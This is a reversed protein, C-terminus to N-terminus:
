SISRASLRATSSPLLGDRRDTVPLGPLQTPQPVRGPRGPRHQCRQQRGPLRPLGSRRRQTNDAGQFYGLDTLDVTGDGNGDGYIRYLGLYHGAGSGATDLPSVYDGGPVNDGDGDFYWGHADDTVDTATVTLQYRGDALSPSGGNEASVPDTQGPDILSVPLFTLVVVTQGSVTSFTASLLVDVNISTSGYNVHNLTIATTPDNSYFDVVGTFTVTISTVESRQASGDNIVISSIGIPQYEVAGIDTEPGITRAVGRQDTTLSDPNSGANLAPSEHTGTFLM